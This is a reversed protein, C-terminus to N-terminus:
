GRIDKRYPFRNKSTLLHGLFEDEKLNFISFAPPLLQAVASLKDAAKCVMPQFVIQTNDGLRKRLFEVAYKCTIGSSVNDDILLLTLFDKGGSSIIKTLPEIAAEAFENTFYQHSINRSLEPSWRDAWLSILPITPFYKRVIIEAIIMGGNTIGIVADPRFSGSKYHEEYFQLEDVRSMIEDWNMVTESIHGHGVARIGSGSVRLDSIADFVPSDMTPNKASNIIYEAISAIAQDPLYKDYSIVKFSSIDFPIEEKERRLLITISPCLAYRIGLELFVNPNRGTLEAIVIDASSLTTIIRRTISGPLARDVERIPHIQRNLHTSSASIAPLIIHNYIFDSQKTSDQSEQSYEGHLGSPMITFCTLATSNDAMIRNRWEQDSLFLVHNNPVTKSDSRNWSKILAKICFKLIIGSSDYLLYHVKYCALV